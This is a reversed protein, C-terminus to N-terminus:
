WGRRPMRDPRRLLNNRKALRKGSWDRVQVKWAASVENQHQTTTLSYRLNPMVPGEDWWAIPTEYSLVVYEARSLSTLQERTIDHTLWALDRTSTELAAVRRGHLNSADFPELQAICYGATNEVGVRRAEGTARDYEWRAGMKVKRPFRDASVWQRGNWRVVEVEAPDNITFEPLNARAQAYSGYREQAMAYDRSRRIGYHLQGTM